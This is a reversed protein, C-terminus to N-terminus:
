RADRGSGGPTHNNLRALVFRLIGLAALLLTARDFAPQYYVLSRVGLDRALKSNSPASIVFREEMLEGAPCEQRLLALDHQDAPGSCALDMQGDSDTLAANMIVRATRETADDMEDVAKLHFLAPEGIM